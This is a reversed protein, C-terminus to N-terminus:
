DVTFSHHSFDDIPVRWVLRQAGFLISTNANPMLFHNRRVVDGRTATRSLGYATEECDLVPLEANMGQSSFRSVRHVFNFHVEDVGNEMQNFYNFPRVPATAV